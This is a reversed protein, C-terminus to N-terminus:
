FQYFLGVGASNVTKVFKNGRQHRLMIRAGVNSTVKMQAGLGARVGVRSSKAHFSQTNVKGCIKSTLYGAGVSGILDVEDSVPLYGMVDAYANNSKTKAASSSAANTFKMKQRNLATYGAELGFNECIRTGAFVSAGAGNEGFFTKNDNRTLTGAKTKISKPGTYRNYQGEAGVYFKPDLEMAFVSSSLLTAVSLAISALKLKM